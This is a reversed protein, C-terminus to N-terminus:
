KDKKRAGLKALEYLGLANVMEPEKEVPSFGKQTLVAKFKPLAVGGGICIIETGNEKMCTALKGIEALGSNWWDRLCEKYISQISVEDVIFKERELATRILDVDGPYGGNISAMETSILKFLKQVGYHKITIEGCPKGSEYPTLVTTGNGFDLTALKNKKLYVAGYGEPVVGIVETTLEVHNGALEVSLEKNENELQKKIEDKKTHYAHSSVVLKVHMVPPCDYHALAGLYLQQIKDIKAFKHDVTKESLRTQSIASEGIMYSAKDTKVSGWCDGVYNKAFCSFIRKEFDDTVVKISGNGADLGVPLYKKPRGLKTMLIGKNLISGEQQSRSGKNYSTSAYAQMHKSTYDHALMFKEEYALSKNALLLM